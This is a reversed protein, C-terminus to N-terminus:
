ALVAWFALCAALGRTGPGLSPFVIASILGSHDFLLIRAVPKLKGGITGIKGKDSVDWGHKPLM